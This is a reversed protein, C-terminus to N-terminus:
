KLKILSLLYNATEQIEENSFAPKFYNIYGLLESVTLIKVYQFEENPKTNTLVVLNRIPINRNGWHHRKLKIRYSAIGESVIKFLVFSTRKIQQVPSRFSLNNLSRESWNKTEILFIGSPAVLIHDIQISKIYDNEQRNYIPTPFSLSFDNILYFEDPLKELERVVQQEGLAGYIFTNLDDIITKKRELDKLPALCREDVVDAFHSVIYQHRNVKESHVEVLKRISYAVKSDFNFEKHQIEGTYYWEKLYNIIRQIFNAPTLSSLIILKQELKEIEDILKKALKIKEAKISRDLRSIDLDLSNKEQEILHEHNSIIEQRYSSYNKQFMIVENLSNLDNIQHQYLHSQITTLCGVSNYVKCM